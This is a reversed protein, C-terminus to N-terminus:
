SPIIYDHEGLMLENKLLSIKTNIMLLENIKSNNSNDYSIEPTFEQLKKDLEALALKLKTTKELYDIFGDVYNSISKENPMVDDRVLLPYFYDAKINPYRLIVYIPNQSFLEKLESYNIEKIPKGNYFLHIESELVYESSKPTYDILVSTTEILNNTSGIEPEVIKVNKLIDDSILLEITKEIVKPLPKSKEVVKTIYTFYKKILSMYEEQSLYQQM